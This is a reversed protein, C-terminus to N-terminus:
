LRYCTRCVIFIRATLKISKPESENQRLAVEKIEKVRVNKREAAFANYLKRTEALILGRNVFYFSDTPQFYGM